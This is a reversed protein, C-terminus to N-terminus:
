VDDEEGVNKVERPTAADVRAVGGPGLVHRTGDGFEFELTGRIVEAVQTRQAGIAQRWQRLRQWRPLARLVRSFRGGRRHM